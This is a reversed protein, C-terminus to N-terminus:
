GLNFMRAVQEAEELTSYKYLVKFRPSFFTVFLSLIEPYVVYIDKGSHHSKYKLVIYM